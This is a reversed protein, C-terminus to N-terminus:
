RGFIIDAEIVKSDDGVDKVAKTNWGAKKLISIIKFETTIM